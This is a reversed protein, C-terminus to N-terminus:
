EGLYTNVRDQILRTTEEASKEGSFFAKTEDVIISNINEDANAFKNLKSIFGDIYDIDSQSMAAPSLSINGNPGKMMMRTKGGTSADIAQQAKKLQAARNISFGGVGMKAPGGANGNGKSQTMGSQTSQAQVEESILTKLLEWSEAKYKSNNNIAYLSSSTFTKGNSAGESPLEYLSLKEKFASKMLAYMNYDTITYPYFVLAGRGAADLVSVMDTKISSDALSSDTFSRVTTLLETFEKSTFAANKKQSDIYNSYSGGTFLNLLEMPGVAPLAARSGGDGSNQTVKGAISKFDEWTWKASDIKISEQDLVEQNAMLINFSFETPLVYLKNDSKLADMINTYYNNIDFDKDKDMIDSLNALINKSVYNEYPLGAASIIDPGNGSLIQTNLNKVYTEYDSGSNDQGPYTQVDIRYEPHEKQYKGAAMELARNSQPVSVTITKKEKLSSSGSDKSYRYIEYKIEGGTVIVKGDKAGGTVTKGSPAGDGAKDPSRGDAPTIKGGGSPASSSTVFINGAADMCLDIINNGAALITYDKFDIATEILKGNSDYRTINQSSMHYISKDAKSYRIKDSGIMYMGSNQSPLDVAWISKGTAADLKEITKKGMGFNGAIINGDADIDLSEYQLSGLTRLKQGDKGLVQINKTPDTLYINGASDVAIDSYGAAAMAGDGSRGLVDLEFNQKVEGGSGLVTLNQVINDQQQESSLVYINDQADLAFARVNGALSCSFETGPVGDSSLTVFRGAEGVGRDFFVLQNESNVRSGVPWKLGSSGGIETEIYRAANEEQSQRSSKDNGCASVSVTLALALFVGLIRKFM